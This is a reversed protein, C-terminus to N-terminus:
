IRSLYSNFDDGEIQQSYSFDKDKLAQLNDIYQQQLSTDMCCAKLKDLEDTYTKSYQQDFRSCLDRLVKWLDEFDSDDIDTTAIHSQLNNKVLRIREIDDGITMEHNQPMTDKGWGNTPKTIGTCLNRLLTYLLTIDFKMYRDSSTSAEHILLWQHVRLNKLKTGKFPLAATEITPPPIYLVLLERLILQMLDVIARSIRAYNEKSKTTSININGPATAM